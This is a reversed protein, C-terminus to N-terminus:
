RYDRKTRVGVDHWNKSEGLARWMSGDGNLLISEDHITKNGVIVDLSELLIILEQANSVKFRAMFPNKEDNDGNWASVYKSYMDIVDVDEESSVTEFYLAILESVLGNYSSWSFLERTIGVKGRYPVFDLPSCLLDDFKSLYKELTYFDTNSVWLCIHDKRERISIKAHFMDSCEDILFIIISNFIRLVDKTEKASIYMKVLSMDSVRAKDKREVNIKAWYEDEVNIWCNGTAGSSCARVKLESVVEKIDNANNYFGRIHQVDRYIEKSNAAKGYKKYLEKLKEDLLRKQKSCDDMGELTRIGAFKSPINLGWAIPEAYERKEREKKRRKAEEETHKQVDIWIRKSNIALKIDKPLDIDYDYDTVEFFESDLMMREFCKELAIFEDFYHDYRYCWEKCEKLEVGQMECIENLPEIVNVPKNVVYMLSYPVDINAPAYSTTVIGSTMEYHDIDLYDNYFNLMKDIYGYKSAYLIPRSVEDIIILPRNFDKDFNKGYRILRIIDLLSHRIREEGCKGEEVDLYWELTRYYDLEGRVRDYISLYLESMKKKFFCIAEEYTKGSYDSFDMFIVFHKDGYGGSLSNYDADENYQQIAKLYSTKGSGFPGCININEFRNAKIFRFFDVTAGM